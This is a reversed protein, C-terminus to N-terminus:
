ILKSEEQSSQTEKEPEVKDNVVTSTEKEKELKKEEIAKKTETELDKLTNKVVEVTSAVTPQTLVKNIAGSTTTKISSGMQQAKQTIGYQGDLENFKDTAQKQISTAKETIGYQIDMEHMKTKIQEIAVKAQLSILHKEDVEKAKEFADSALVYGAALLSAIVSTKSRQDDPVPFDRQTIDKEPIEANGSLINTSETQKESPVVYPIVTIPRDIILANTL